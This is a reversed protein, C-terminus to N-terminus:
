FVQRELAAMGALTLQTIAQMTAAAAAAARETVTLLDQRIAMPQHHAVEAVGVALHVHAVTVAWQQLLLQHGTVAQAAEQIDLQTEPM